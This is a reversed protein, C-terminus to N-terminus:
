NEARLRAVRGAGPELGGILAREEDESTSEFIDGNVSYRAGGDYVSIVVDGNVVVGDCGGPFGGGSLGDTVYQTAGSDCFQAVVSEEPHGYGNREGSSYVVVRPKLASALDGNSSHGSGHHNARYVEVQMDRAENRWHEVLHSEVNTYIAGRGGPYRRVSYREDERGIPSGTLDGGSFFEFDGARLVFAISRDNESAPMSESYLDSDEAALQDMLGADGNAVRGSVAVIELSVGAGLDIEGDGLAPTRREGIIGAAQWDGAGEIVACHAKNNVPIYTEDGEGPDFLTGISFAGYRQALLGFLGTPKQGPAHGVCPEGPPAGMHDKHFHTALAYDPSAEGLIDTLRAYIRRGNVAKGVIPEGADVLLSRREPAPGVILMSDAQGVEFIHIELDPASAEVRRAAAVVPLDATRWGAVDPAIEGAAFEEGNRQSYDSGGSACASLVAALAGFWIIHRPM